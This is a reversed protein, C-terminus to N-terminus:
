SLVREEEDIQPLFRTNRQRSPELPRLWLSVHAPQTTEQVVAVLDESLQSLDVEHRLTASFAELIRVADYRRRYFRRDIVQQTGKRLPQFLAAIALTSGVIAIDSTQSILGRLLFQLAIVLGTYVLALIATLTSYVLTQNIILDIDWLRSRLIAFGFALPVLLMFGYVVPGEILSVLSGTQFLSPFVLSITSIVIYGGWGVSAGYVVWKTQQRQTPSSVRRYRYIQVVVISGILGLLILDNLVQYTSLPNFPSFPFFTNFVGYILGVVLVWRTWRPVFHGSPFLYFFLGLCLTGLFRICLVLFWWPSPLANILPSNFVIPFTGLSVAALLALRNNSKRWFLFAAVLWYGLALISMIVILYIAFFDKSLGLEYLRRVDGPTLQGHTYCAAATGMCLLHLHAVFSPIDAVFLGVSLVCLTLCVLQVLVLRYGYLRTIAEYQTDRKVSDKLSADRLSM